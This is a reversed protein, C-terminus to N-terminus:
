RAWEVFRYGRPGDDMFREIKIRSPRGDPPDVPVTFVWGKVVETIRFTRTSRPDNDAWVQGPEPWIMEEIATM